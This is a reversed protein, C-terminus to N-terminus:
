DFLRQFISLRRWLYTKRFVKYWVVDPALEYLRNYIEDSTKIWVDKDAMDRAIKQQWKEFIEERLGNLRLQEMYFLVDEPKGKMMLQNFYFNFLWERPKFKMLWITDPRSFLNQLATDGQFLTYLRQRLYEMSDALQLAYFYELRQLVKEYCIASSYKELIFHLPQLDTGYRAWQFASDAMAQGILFSRSEFASQARYFYKDYQYAAYVTRQREIRRRTDEITQNINECDSIYWRRAVSDASILKKVAEPFKFDWLHSGVERMCADFFLYGTEKILQCFDPEDQLELIEIESLLKYANVWLSDSPNSRLKTQVEALANYLKVVRYIKLVSDEARSPLLRAGWSNKLNMWQELLSEASPYDTVKLAAQAKRIIHGYSTQLVKSRLQDLQPHKLYVTLRGAYEYAKLLYPIAEEDRGLNHLLIVKELCADAFHGYVEADSGRGQLLARYKLRFSLAKQIYEEGMSLQGNHVADSAVRLLAHYLGQLPVQMRSEVLDAEDYHGVMRLIEKADAALLFAQDYLGEAIFEESKQLLLQSLSKAYEDRWQGPVEPMCQNLLDILNERFGGSVSSLRKIVHGYLPNLFADSQIWDSIFSASLKSTSAAEHFYHGRHRHLFLNRRYVEGSLIRLGEIVKAPDHNSLPLSLSDVFHALINRVRALEVASAILCGMCTTDRYDYQQALDLSKQLAYHVAKYTRIDYMSTKLSEVQEDTFNPESLFFILTDSCNHVPVSIERVSDVPWSIKTDLLVTGYGKVEVRLRFSTPSLIHNLPYDLYVAPGTIGAPKLRLVKLSNQPECEMSNEFVYGLKFIKLLYGNERALEGVIRNAPIQAANKGPVFRLWLTDFTGGKVGFFTGWSAFFFILFKKM